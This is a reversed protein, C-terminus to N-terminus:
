LEARNELAFRLLSQAGRLGLREGIKARHSDVTRPSVCLEHAIEKTTRNAGILRLVRRETPTLGKLRSSGAAEATGRDKRRDLYERLSNSLYFGGAAVVRIALLM